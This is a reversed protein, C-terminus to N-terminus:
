CSNKFVNQQLALIEKLHTCLIMQFLQIQFDHDIYQMSILVSTIYKPLM